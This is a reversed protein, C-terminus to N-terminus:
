KEWWRLDDIPEFLGDKYMRLAEAIRVVYAMPLCLPKGTMKNTCNVFIFHGRDDFRGGPQPLVDTVYMVDYPKEPNTYYQAM